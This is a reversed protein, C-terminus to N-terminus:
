KMTIFCGDFNCNVINKVSGVFGSTIPFLGSLIGDFDDHFSNQISWHWLVSPFHYVFLRPDFTFKQLFESDKIHLIM